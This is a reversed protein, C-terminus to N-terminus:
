DSLMVTRTEPIMRCRGRREKPNESDEVVEWAMCASGACHQDASLITAQRDDMEPVWLRSRGSWCIKRRAEDDTFLM